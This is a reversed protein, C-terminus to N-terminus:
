QSLVDLGLWFPARLPQLQGIRDGDDKAVLVAVPNRPLQLANGQGAAQDYWGREKRWTRHDPQYKNRGLPWHGTRCLHQV